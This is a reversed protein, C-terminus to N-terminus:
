DTWGPRPRVPIDGCAENQVPVVESARQSSTRGWIDSALARIVRRNGGREAKILHAVLARRASVGAASQEGNGGDPM